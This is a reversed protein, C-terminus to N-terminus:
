DGSTGRAASVGGSAPIPHELLSQTRAYESIVFRRKGSPTPIEDVAEVVIRLSEAGRASLARVLRQEVEPGYGAAPVVRVLISELESQLVQFSEIESFHEIVGTFFHVILRNGSPTIVIDTDRGEVSQMRAFGRGCACLEAPGLTGVDGVQYRLFPMAGAHLRTLLINGSEGEDKLNGAEDTTEVVVDLTHIHYNQEHGCQAAIQMGESCGYTDHVRTGFAREIAARYGPYLTDGWTVISRLPRNWGQQIARLALQYLSGPYGFLHEIHNDELVALNADLAADSLDAQNIYHCRLLADKVKRDLTRSITIGFQMHREGIQWGAWQFSLV